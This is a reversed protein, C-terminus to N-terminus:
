ISQEIWYMLGEGWGQLGRIANQNYVTQAAEDQISLVRKSDKVISAKVRGAQFAAPESPPRIIM